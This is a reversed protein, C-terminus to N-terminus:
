YHLSNTILINEYSSFVNIGNFVVILIDMVLVALLLNNQAKRLKQKETVQDKQFITFRNKLIDLAVSPAARHVDLLVQALYQAESTQIQEGFRKMAEEPSDSWQTIMEQIPKRIRPLFYQLQKVTQYLNRAADIDLKEFDQILLVYFTYLDRNIEYQRRAKMYEMLFKMITFSRYMTAWWAIFVLVLYRPSGTLELQYLAYMLLLFALIIRIFLWKESNLWPIGALQFDHDLTENAAWKSIRSRVQQQVNIVRLRMIGKPRDDPIAWYTVGTIIAIVCLGLILDLM